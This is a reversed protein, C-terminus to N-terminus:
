RSSDDRVLPVVRGSAGLDIRMANGEADRVFALTYDAAKLFFQDPGSAFLEFSDGRAPQWWLRGDREVIRVHRGSPTRYVGTYHRFESPNASTALPVVRPPMSQWKKVAADAVPGCTLTDSVFERLFACALLNGEVGESWYFPASLGDANALAILALRSAPVVLILGSYADPWYGHQWVLRVGQYDEVFWGLSYPLHRGDPLANPSWMRALTSEAVIRGASLATVFRAYDLVTSIVNAAANLESPPPLAPVLEGGLVRYPRALHSIGTTYRAQRSAAVGPPLSAASDLADIGPVSRAMDLPEFLRSALLERYSSGTRSSLVTGLAEYVNGNYSYGTGPPDSEATMTIVHRITAGPKGVGPSYRVIPDDLSLEGREVLQMVLASTLPKTLSAINFPTDPTVPLRRELDAFGYGKSWIVRGDRVVAVALGPLRLTQADAAFVPDLHSLRTSDRPALIAPPAALLLM